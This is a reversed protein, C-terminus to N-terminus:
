EAGLWRVYGAREHADFPRLQDATVYYGQSIAYDPNWQWYRAFFGDGFRAAFAADGQPTAPSASVSLSLFLGTVVCLLI